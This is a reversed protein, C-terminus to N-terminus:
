GKLLRGEINPPIPLKFSSQRGSGRFDDHRQSPTAGLRWLRLLRRIVFLRHQLAIPEIAHSDLAPLNGRRVVSPSRFLLVSNRREARAAECHCKGQLEREGGWEM